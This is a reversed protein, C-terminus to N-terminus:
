ANPSVALIANSVLILYIMVIQHMVLVTISLSRKQLFLRFSIILSLVTSVAAFLAFKYLGWWEGLVLDDIFYQVTIKFDFQEVRLVVNFINFLGLMLSVGSMVTLLRDEFYAKTVLNKLM